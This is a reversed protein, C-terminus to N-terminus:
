GGGGELGNPLGGLGGGPQRPQTFQHGCRVALAGLQAPLTQRSQRMYRCGHQALGLGQQGRHPTCLELHGGELLLGIQHHLSRPPAIRRRGLKGVLQAERGSLRAIGHGFGPGFQRQRHDLPVLRARLLDMAAHMAAHTEDLARFPAHVHHTCRRDRRIQQVCRAGRRVLGFPPALQLRWVCRRARRGPAPPQQRVQLVPQVTAVARVRGTRLPEVRPDLRRAKEIAQLRQQQVLAAQQALLVPIQILSPLPEFPRAINRRVAGPFAHLRQTHEAEALQRGPQAVTGGKVVADGHELCAAVAVAPPGRRHTVPHHRAAQPHVRLVVGRQSQEFLSHGHQLATPAPKTFVRPQHRDVGGHV